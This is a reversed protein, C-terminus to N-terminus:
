DGGDVFEFPCVIMVLEPAVKVMGVPMDVGVVIVEFSWVKVNMGEGEVVEEVSPM